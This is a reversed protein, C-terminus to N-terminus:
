KNGKFTNLKVLLLDPIGSYFDEVTEKGDLLVAYDTPEVIRGHLNYLPSFYIKEGLVGALWWYGDTDSIKHTYKGLSTM